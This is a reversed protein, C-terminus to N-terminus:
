ADHHYSYVKLDNADFAHNAQIDVSRGAPLDFYNNRFVIKKDPHFLYIGKAFRDSTIRLSSDGTQGIEFNPATLQMYKPRTFTYSNKAESGDEWKLKLHLIATFRQSAYDTLTFKQVIQSGPGALSVPITKESILEGTVTEERVTIKGSRAGPLDSCVFIQGIGDEEGELDISYQQQFGVLNSAYARQLYYYSAKPIHNYDLASWSIAPWCDNFQWILIGGCEPANARWHEAAFRLYEGQALNSLIIAKDFETSIRFLAGSFKILRENKSPSEFHNRKEFLYSQMHHDAPTGMSLATRLDPMSQIGTESVFSPVNDAYSSFDQTYKFLNWPHSDGHFLDNPTGADMKCWPSGPRYPRKPDLEALLKPFVEHYVKEGFFRPFEDHRDAWWEYYAEHCENEGCWLALSTYKRLRLINDILEQKVEELFDADDDPYLTCVFMADQWVMIGLEDCHEYFQDDEYIGGGWIRLMNVNGNKALALQERYASEYGRPISNDLPIWNYGRTFIEQGNVVFQFRTGDRDKRPAEAIEISRFGIKHSREDLVTKDLLSIKAEYLHAEGYGNPYWLIANRIRFPIECRGNKVNGILEQGAIELKAECDVGPTTELQLKADISRDSITYDFNFERITAADFARIYVSRYFGSVAMCPGWDWFFSYAPKRLFMFDLDLHTPFKKGYAQQRKQSEKLPSRFIGVLHNNEEKLLDKVDSHYRRFCNETQNIRQGNLWLECVTDIGDFHLEIHQRNIFDSASFRVQYIFDRQAYPAFSAEYDAATDPSVLGAAQLDTLNTGPVEALYFKLQDIDDPSQIALHKAFAFTWGDDLPRQLSEM